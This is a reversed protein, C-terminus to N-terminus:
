NGFCATVIWFNLCVNIKISFWWRQKQVLEVWENGQLYNVIELFEAANEANVTSVDRRSLATTRVINQIESRYDRTVVQKSWGLLGYVLDIIKDVEIDMELLREAIRQVEDLALIEEVMAHAEESSINEFFEQFDPSTNLKESLIAFTASLDLIQRIEDLFEKVSRVNVDDTCKSIEVNVDVGVSDMYAKFRKWTPNDAVTDVLNSWEAGQLYKVVEQFEGDNELHEQAIAKIQSLPITAIIDEFDQQLDRGTCPIASCTAM